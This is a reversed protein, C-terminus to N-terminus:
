TYDTSPFLIIIQFLKDFIIRISSDTISKSIQLKGSHAYSVVSNGMTIKSNKPLNFSIYFCLLALNPLKNLTVTHLSFELNLECAELGITLQSPVNSLWHIKALLLLSVMCLTDTYRYVGRSVEHGKWSSMGPAYLITSLSLNSFVCSPNQHM